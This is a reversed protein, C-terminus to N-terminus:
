SPVSSPAWTTMAGMKKKSNSLGIRIEISGKNTFKIANGILNLLTQKIRNSDSEVISPVSKEISSILNVSEEKVQDRSITIVDTL